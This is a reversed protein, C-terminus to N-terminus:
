SSIILNKKKSDIGLKKNFVCCCNMRFVERHHRNRRPNNISCFHRNQSPFYYRYLWWLTRKLLDFSSFKNIKKKTKKFGEFYGCAKAKIMIERKQLSSLTRCDELGYFILVFKRKKTERALSFFSSFNHYYYFNQLIGISHTGVSFFIQKSLLSVKRWKKKNVKFSTLRVSLIATSM